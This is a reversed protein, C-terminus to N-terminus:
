APIEAYLLQNRRKLEARWFRYYCRRYMDAIWEKPIKQAKMRKAARVLKVQDYGLGQDKIVIVGAEAPLWDPISDELTEPVAYFFQAVHPRPNKWKQKNRDANWDALTVKIEVETGYGAKSVFFLDARGGDIFEETLMPHQWWDFYSACALIIRGSHWNANKPKSQLVGM